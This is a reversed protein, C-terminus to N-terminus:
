YDLVQEKYRFIYYSIGIQKENDMTGTLAYYDLLAARMIRMLRLCARFEEPLYGFGDLDEMDKTLRGKYLSTFKEILQLRHM